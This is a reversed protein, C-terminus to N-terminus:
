ERRHSRISSRRSRARSVSCVSSQWGPRICSTVWSMRGSAVRGRMAAHREHEGLATSTPNSTDARPRALGSASPRPDIPPLAASYGAGPVLMPWAVAGADPAGSPPKRIQESTTVGFIRVDSYTAKSVGFEGPTRYTEEMRGPIRVSVKPHQVFDVTTTVSSYVDGLIVESRVLVGTGPEVWIRGRGPTDRGSASRVFTPTGVEEFRLVNVRQGARTVDRSSSLTVREPPAVLYAFILDPVNTTRPVRGLNFRASEAAITRMADITGPANSELLRLLRHERDRVPRGDVEYVDRFWVPEGSGPPHLMLVDSRLVVSRPATRRGSISQEYHEHAVVSTMTALYQM